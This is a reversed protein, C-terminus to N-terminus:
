LSHFVVWLDECRIDFPESRTDLDPFRLMLPFQTIRNGDFPTQIWIFAVGEPMGELTYRGEAFEQFTIEFDGLQHKPFAEYFCALNRYLRKDPPLEERTDCAALFDDGIHELDQPFISPVAQRRPGTGVITTAEPAHPVGAFFDEIDRGNDGKVMIALRFTLQPDERWAHDYPLIIRGHIAHAEQPEPARCGSGLAVALLLVPVLPHEAIRM